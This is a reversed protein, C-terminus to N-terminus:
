EEAEIRISAAQPEAEDLRLVFRREEAEAGDPGLSSFGLRPYLDRVMGNKPSPRYVGVLRAAGFDRAAAVVADRMAAEAGRGIVRCSMLWTDLVLDAGSRRGIIIGVIGNDALRDTLRFRLALADSDTLLAQAEADTIRRTTLNFQNTKNVLQVIRPLDPATFRRWLLRMDLGALYAPLDDGQAEVEQRAAYHRGRARDEATVSLAEFYGARAIRDAYGSPDPPLEPVAVEPLASRVRDREFPNDDAFVLADLGLNLQAAVRRLNEAKDDWNALFAAIDGRKLVMEPHREFAELANAEDNKSVVALVIGRRSLDRAYAQFAAFAEGEASGPGLVLAAPGDDGVVGGWLTNDLDLVLAKRSLGRRAGLMRAVLDGFYPAAAPAIEQKARWWWVSDHWASLGHRQVAADLALVDIGEEAALGPLAANLRAVAAARSGPLRHEGSGALPVPTPLLTPQILGCGLQTRAARWLRRWDDRVAGETRRAQDADQAVDFGATAHAADFILLIDDPAFAHLGSAPDLIDQRYGGYPGEYLDLWLGRRLGAVRIAPLLHSVTSSGLVALRVPPRALGPPAEPFAADLARALANTRVANLRTNALAVFGGWSPADRLGALREAWPGPDPLWDLDPM